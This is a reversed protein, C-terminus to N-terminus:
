GDFILKSGASLVINANGTGATGIRLTNTADEWFFNANDEALVGNPGIFLVSGETGGLIKSGIRLSEGSILSTAIQSM